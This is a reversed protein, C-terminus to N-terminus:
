GNMNDNINTMKEARELDKNGIVKCSIPICQVTHLVVVNLYICHLCLYLHGSHIAYINMPIKLQFEKVPVQFQASM